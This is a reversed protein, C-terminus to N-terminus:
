RAGLFRFFVFGDTQQCSGGNEACLEEFIRVRDESYADDGEERQLHRKPPQMVPVVLPVARPADDAVHVDPVPPREHNQADDVAAQAQLERRGGVPEDDGVGDDRGAHREEVDDGRNKSHEAAPPGRSM